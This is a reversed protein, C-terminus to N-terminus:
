AWTRPACMVVGSATSTYSTGVAVSGAWGLLGGVLALVLPMWWGRRLARGMDYTSIEGHELNPRPMRTAQSM